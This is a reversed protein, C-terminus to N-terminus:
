LGVRRVLGRDSSVRVAPTDFCETSASWSDTAAIRVKISTCLLCILSCPRM